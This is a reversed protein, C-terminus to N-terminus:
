KMPQRRDKKKLKQQEVDEKMTRECSNMETVKHTTQRLPHLLTIVNCMIVVDHQNELRYLQRSYSTIDTAVRGKGRFDVVCQGNQRERTNAALAAKWKKKFIVVKRSTERLIM